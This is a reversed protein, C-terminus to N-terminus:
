EPIVDAEVEVLLATLNSRQEDTMAGHELWASAERIADAMETWLVDGARYLRHTALLRSRVDEVTRRIKRRM